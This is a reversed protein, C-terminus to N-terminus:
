KWIPRTILPAIHAGAGVSIFSQIFATAAQDLLEEVRAWPKDSVYVIDRPELPFDKQQGALIAATDVVFTRPKTLSGRVVLVRQKFASPLFGAGVVLLGMLMWKAPKEMGLDYFRWGLPDIANGGLAGGCSEALIM